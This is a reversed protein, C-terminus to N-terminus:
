VKRWDTAVAYTGGALEYLKYDAFLTPEIAQMALFIRTTVDRIPVDAAGAARMECVHRLARINGSFVIPAETENPLCSRAAQNVKKRLETKKEGALAPDLGKMQKATLIRAIENYEATARDIRSLFMKHLLVDEQYEPREVFRLVHGDVFRQSVQSFAVGTRHRVLEHTFSRDAGYLLFTYQAHELVSGHGSSLINNIYKQAEANKTRNPGFSMYCLQGAAKILEAGQEGDGVGDDDLYQTFDLEEPFGTLFGRLQGVNFNSRALLVVGPQVLYAVRSDTFQPTADFRPHGIDINYGNLRAFVEKPDVQKAEM